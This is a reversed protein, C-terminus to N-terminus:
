DLQSVRVEFAPMPRGAADRADNVSFAFVKSHEALTHDILTFIADSVPKPLAGAVSKPVGGMFSELTLLAPAAGAPKGTTQRPVAGISPKLLAGARHEDIIRRNLDAVSIGLREAEARMWDIQPTTFSAMQKHMVM